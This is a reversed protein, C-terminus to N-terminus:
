STPMMLARRNPRRGAGADAGAVELVDAVANGLALTLLHPDQLDRVVISVYLGGKPAHWAHGHTGRGATMSEAVVTTGDPAGARALRKAEDMTSATAALRVVERIM